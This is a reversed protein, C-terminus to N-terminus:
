CNGSSAAATSDLATSCEAPATTFANCVATKYAEATRATNVNVGNIILTPSGTVGNSQAKTSAATFLSAGDSSVCAFVKASDIGLANMVKTSETKDCEETRTSSCTPYVNSVFKEAYNWYKDPYLKQICSQIKNQQTEYAGHGDYYPVIEFNAKGKLLNAVTALPGQAQVGYPCYGWVYLEVKPKSTKPVETNTDAVVNGTIGATTTPLEKVAQVFYKGDKTIYVPINQSQYLVTIEYINGLDTSNVYTVTGSAISNLYTVLKEGADDGKIVNGTLPGRIFLVISVLFLVAFLVASIRWLKLNDKLTEM